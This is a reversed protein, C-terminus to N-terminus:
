PFFAFSRDHGPGKTTELSHFATLQEPNKAESSDVHFLASHITTDEYALAGFLDIFPNPPLNKQRDMGHLSRLSNDAAYDRVGRRIQIRQLKPKHRFCSKNSM